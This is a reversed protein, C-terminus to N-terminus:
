RKRLQRFAWPLVFDNDAWVGIRQQKASEEYDLYTKSTNKCFRLYDTYVPAVGERVLQLNVPEPDSGVFVEALVRNYRDRSSSARLTVPTGYPLLQKLRAIAEDGEPKQAKEPSDICAMRVKLTEGDHNQVQITDGDTIKTITVNKLWVDAALTKIPAIALLIIAISALIPIRPM